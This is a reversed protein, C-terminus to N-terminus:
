TPCWFYAIVGLPFMKNRCVREQSAFQDFREALQADRQAITGQGPFPLKGTNPWPIRYTAAIKHYFNEQLCSYVYVPLCLMYYCALLLLIVGILRTKTRM